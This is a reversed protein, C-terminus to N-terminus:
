FHYSVGAFVNFMHYITTMPIYVGFPINFLRDDVQVYVPAYKYRLAADISVKKTIMYRVGSEVVLALSGETSKYDNGINLHTDHFVVAPGIGLYPQLRGFPVEQDPMYGYRMMLLFSATVMLGYNKLPTRLNIPSITADQLPWNLEHWDISIAVGFYKMWDPYNRAWTGERSFWYGIRGGVLISPSVKVNHAEFHNVPIPPPIDTGQIKLADWSPNTDAVFNGGVYLGADMEAEASISFISLFFLTLFIFLNKKMIIEKQRIYLTEPV